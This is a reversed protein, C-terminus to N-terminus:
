IGRFFIIYSSVSTFFFYLYFCYNNNKKEKNLAFSHHLYVPSFLQQFLFLFFEGVWGWLSANIYHSGPSMRM